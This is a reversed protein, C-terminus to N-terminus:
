NKFIKVGYDKRLDIPTIDKYDHARANMEDQSMSKLAAVREELTGELPRGSRNYGHFGAHFARPVNFFLGQGNEKERVKQIAGDQEIHSIPNNPFTKKLYASPNRYFHINALQTIKKLNQLKWSIGLSQFSSFLYVCDPCEEYIIANDQNRCASVFFSDYSSQAICHSDFYDVGIFIDEEILHVLDYKYEMAVNYAWKYGELVNYSNGRYNHNPTFRIEKDLEFNQAVKLVDDSYGRDVLFVYCNDSSNNAKKIFDLTCQLFDARRWCPILVISNAM